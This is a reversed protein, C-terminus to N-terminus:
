CRHHPACFTIIKIANPNYADHKLWIVCSSRTREWRLLQTFVEKFALAHWSEARKIVELTYIRMGMATHLNGKVPSM